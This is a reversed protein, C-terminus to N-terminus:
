AVEMSVAFIRILSPLNGPQDSDKSSAYAVKSTKNDQPEYIMLTGHFPVQLCKCARSLDDLLSTEM